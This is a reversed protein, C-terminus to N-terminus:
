IVIGRFYNNWNKFNPWLKKVMMDNLFQYMKGAKMLSGIGNPMTSM